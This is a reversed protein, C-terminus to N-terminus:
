DACPGWSGLLIGLDAGGVFGDRDLDASTAPGAPGWAGLLAGLDAGNVVADGDLDATCTNVPAECSDLIGNGNTDTAWGGAIECSDLVGNADCDASAAGVYDLRMDIWTGGTCGLADVADSPEAIVHLAGAADIGLNFTDPEITIEHFVPTAACEDTAGLMRVDVLSGIRIRVYELAAGFDGRARVRLTVPAVAPAANPVIWEAPHGRGIPAFTPSIASVALQKECQDGYGNANCDEVLDDVADCADLRSNGNCDHGALEATDPVGNANCDPVAVAVSHEFGTALSVVPGLDAPVSTQGSLNLGWMRASRGTLVAGSQFGFATIAVAPGTGTPVTCQGYADSGWCTVSGDTRLAVTHSHGCAVKTCAGLGEPVSSQGSANDGWCRVAGDSRVAAAHMRGAAIATCTGLDAPVSAASSGIGWGRVTGSATLALSFQEGGAIETCPGLDAPVNCQGNVNYGWAVVRSDSSRIALAHFYGADVKSAGDALAGPISDLGSIGHSGWLCVNAAGACGLGVTLAINFSHGADVQRCLGVGPPVTSQTAGPAGWARVSGETPVSPTFSVNMVANGDAGGFGGVRVYYTGPTVSPLDVRSQFTPGTPNCADDDCAVRELAGCTGRYVVVSTDFGSACFDLVLNGASPADFRFWGDRSTGWNLYTCPGNAPPDASPTLAITNLSVTGTTVAIATSCEDGPAQAFAPAALILAAVAATRSRPM